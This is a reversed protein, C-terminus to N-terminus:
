PDKEKELFGSALDRLGKLKKEFVWTSTEQSKRWFDNLINYCGQM